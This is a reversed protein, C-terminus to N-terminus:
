WSKQNAQLKAALYKVAEYVDIPIAFFLCRNLIESKSEGCRRKKWTTFGGNTIIGTVFLTGYWGSLGPEYIM